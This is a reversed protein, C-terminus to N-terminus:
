SWSPARYPRGKTTGDRHAWLLDEILSDGWLEAYYAVGLEDQFRKAVGQLAPFIDRDYTLSRLCYRRVLRRWRSRPRAWASSSVGGSPGDDPQEGPGVLDAKSFKETSWGGCECAARGLCEWYLERDAFHAVRPSLLREQFAWARRLLPLESDEFADHGPQRAHVSYASGGQGFGYVRDELGPPPGGFLGGHADPSRTAAITLHASSYTSPMNSSERRWDDEDDQVICLSDIWLYQLGLQRTLELADQFTRPLRGWPIRSKFSRLTHTKTEIPKIGGWCHSLCAYKAVTPQKTGSVHLRIREKGEIM